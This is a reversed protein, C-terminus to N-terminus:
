GEERAQRTRRRTRKPSPTQNLNLEGEDFIHLSKGAAKQEDYAREYEGSQTLAFPNIHFLNSLLDVQHRGQEGTAVVQFGQARLCDAFWGHQGHPSGLIVEHRLSPCGPQSQLQHAVHDIAVLPTAQSIMRQVLAAPDRNQSALVQEIDLDDLFAYMSEIHELLLNIGEPESIPQRGLRIPAKDSLITLIWEGSTAAEYEAWNLRFDPKALQFISHQHQTYLQEEEAESLINEEQVPRRQRQQAYQVEQQRVRHATQELSTLWTELTEHQDRVWQELQTVLALQADLKLLTLQHSLEAHKRNYWRKRRQHHFQQPFTRWLFPEPKTLQQRIRQSANETQRHKRKLIQKLDALFDALGASDEDPQAHSLFEVAAALGLNPDSVMAELEQTLTRTISIVHRRVLRELENKWVPIKAKEYAEIAAQLQKLNLQRYPGLEVTFARARSDARFLTDIQNPAVQHKALLERAQAKLSQKMEPEPQRLLHDELIRVATRLTYLRKLEEVPLVLRSYNQSYAINPWKQEDLINPIISELIDAIPGISSLVWCVANIEYVQDQTYVRDGNVGNCLKILTYPPRREVTVPGIKMPSLPQTHIAALELLFAHASAQIVPQRNTNFTEPLFMTTNIRYNTIGMNALQYHLLWADCCAASSGKAGGPSHPQDIILLGDFDTSLSGTPELRGAAVAPASWGFLELAPTMLRSLLEHGATEAKYEYVMAGISRDGHCGNVVIEIPKLDELRKSINGFRDLGLFQNPHAIKARLFEALPTPGWHYFEGPAFDQRYKGDNDIVLFRLWPPKPQFGTLRQVQQRREKAARVGSGGEGLVLHRRGATVAPPASAAQAGEQTSQRTADTSSQPVPNGKRNSKM